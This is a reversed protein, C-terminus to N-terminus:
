RPLAAAVEAPAVQLGTLREVADATLAATTEALNARAQARAADLRAAAETAQADLQESLAKMRAEVARAAEARAKAVEAQAATRAAAMGEDYQSRMAAATSQAGEAADLDSRVQHERADIVKGVKPLTPRVVAFYLALFIAAFWALQPLFFATDFQPV